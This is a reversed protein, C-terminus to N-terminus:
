DGRYAAELPAIELKVMNMMAKMVRSAKAEDPDRLMDGLADPAIQWSVGFRDQLWGCQWEKGGDLLKTWYRDVEEQSKCHV